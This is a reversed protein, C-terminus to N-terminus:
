KIIKVDVWKLALEGKTKAQHNKVNMSYTKIFFKDNPLLSSNIKKLTVWNSSVAKDNNDLPELKASVEYGMGIKELKVTISRIRDKFFDSHQNPTRLINSALKEQFSSTSKKTGKIGKLLLNGNSNINLQALVVQSGAKNSIGLEFVERTSQPIVNLNATFVWDSESDPATFRLINKANKPKNTAMAFTVSGKSVEMLKTDSNLVQWQNSLSKEVFDDRFFDEYTKKADIQEKISNLGRKMDEVNNVSYYNEDDEDAISFLEAVEDEKVDIALVYVAIDKAKLWSTVENIDGGCSDKGDSFLVISKNGQASSLEEGGQQLATALPASGQESEFLDLKNIIEEKDLRQLPSVIEIASCDKDGQHGYVELGVNLDQPLNELMTELAETASDLKSLDKLKTHDPFKGSMRESVDFIFMVNSSALAQSTFVYGTLVMVLIIVRSQLSKKM